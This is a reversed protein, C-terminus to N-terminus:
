MFPSSSLWGWLPKQSYIEPYYQPHIEKMRKFMEENEKCNYMEEWMNERERKFKYAYAFSAIGCGYHIASDLSMKTLINSFFKTSM